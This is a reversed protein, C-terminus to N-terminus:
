VFEVSKPYSVVHPVSRGPVNPAKKIRLLIDEDLIGKRALFDKYWEMDQFIADDVRAGYILFSALPVEQDTKIVSLEVREHFQAM